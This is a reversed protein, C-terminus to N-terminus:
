NSQEDFLTLKKLQKDLQKKFIHFYVNMTFQDCDKQNKPLIALLRNRYEETLGKDINDTLGNIELFYKIEAIAESVYSFELYYDFNYRTQSEWETLQVANKEIWDTIICPSGNNKSMYLLKNIQHTEPVTVGKCELYAKLTFEVCQQLNYAADNIFQEDWSYNKLMEEACVLKHRASKFYRIDCM